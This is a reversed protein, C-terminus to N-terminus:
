ADTAVFYLTGIDTVEGDTAVVKVKNENATKLADTVKKLEAADVVRNATGATIAATDALQVMGSVTASGAPLEGKAVLDENALDVFIGTSKKAVGGVFTNKATFENAKTKYAIDSNGADGGAVADLAAKLSAPTVARETDTGAKAEEDTALEVIGAKDATASPLATTGNTINTIQEELKTTKLEVEGKTVVDESHLNAWDTESINKAIGATFTAKANLYAVNELNASTYQVGVKSVTGTTAKVYKDFHHIEKGGTPKGAEDIQIFVGDRDFPVLYTVGVVMEAQNAPQSYDKLAFQISGSELNDVRGKLKAIDTQNQTVNDKIPKVDLIAKDTGNIPYVIKNIIKDAM